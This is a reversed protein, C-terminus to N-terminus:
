PEADLAKDAAALLAAAKAEASLSPTDSRAAEVILARMRPPWFDRIHSATAEVARARHSAALNRAIENAMAVLHESTNM